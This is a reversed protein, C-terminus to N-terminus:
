KQQGELARVLTVILHDFLKFYDSIGTATSVSPPLIVLKAGSNKAIFQPVKGNFYPEVIIIRVREERIQKILQASHAMSPPIGPKPEVFGVARLGFRRFFYPWSKHYAVVREGNFPKM